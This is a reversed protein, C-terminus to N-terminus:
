RQAEGGLVFVLRGLDHANRLHTDICGQLQELPETERSVAQRCADLLAETGLHYLAEAVDEKSQYLRYFTRRSVGAAALLDEVTREEEGEVDIKILDVRSVDLVGEKELDDVRAVRVPVKGSYRNARREIEPVLSHASGDSVTFFPIEGARNSLAMNVP